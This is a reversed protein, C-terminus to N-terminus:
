EENWGDPLESVIADSLPATLQKRGQCKRCSYRGRYVRTNEYTYEHGRPCHTKPTRLASLLGRRINISRTVAELHGPRICRRNRCLHDIDLGEPIPRIFEEFSVRHAYHRRQAITVQGYGSPTLCGTWEWCGDGITFKDSFREWQQQTLM